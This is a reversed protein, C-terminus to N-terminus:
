EEDYYHSHFVVKAGPDFIIKLGRKELRLGLEIDEFDCGFKEDFKESHWGNKKWLYIAPIFIIFGPTTRLRSRITIFSRALRLWGVCLIPFKKPNM